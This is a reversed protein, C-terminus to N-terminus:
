FNGYDVQLCTFGLDKRWLDVVQDRDDLVFQVYYKEKVNEEWLERKVISDKRNDHKKRMYLEYDIDRKWDFQANLWMETQVISEDGRGSLFIIVHTKSLIKVLDIIDQKPMDEGVISMDHPRRDGKDAITGDIDVIACHPLDRDQNM